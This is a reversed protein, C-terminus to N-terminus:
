TDVACPISSPRGPMNGRKHYVSRIGNLILKFSSSIAVMAALDRVKRLSESAGTCGIDFWNEFSVRFFKPSSVITTELIIMCRIISFDDCIRNMKINAMSFARILHPIIWFLNRLMGKVAISSQNVM